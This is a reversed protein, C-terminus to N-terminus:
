FAEDLSPIDLSHNESSFEYPVAAGDDNIIFDTPVFQGNAPPSLAVSHSCM